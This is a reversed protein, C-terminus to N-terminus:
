FPPFFYFHAVQSGKAKRSQLKSILRVLEEFGSVPRAVRSAMNSEFDLWKFCLASECVDLVFDDSVGAVIADRDALLSVKRKHAFGKGRFKATEITTERSKPSIFCRKLSVVGHDDRVRIRSSSFRVESRGAHLIEIWETDV